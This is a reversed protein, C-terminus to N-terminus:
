RTTSWIYLSINFIDSVNQADCMMDVLVWMYYIVYYM